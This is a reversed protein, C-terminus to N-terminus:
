KQETPGFFPRRSIYQQHLPFMISYYESWGGQRCRVLDYKQPYKEAEAFTEPNATTITLMNSGIESDAFQKMLIELDELPFDERINLDVPAANAVGFNIPDTNWDKLCKFADNIETSPPADIPSPQCSFDNAISEGALRGDASAGMGSGLGVNDEFTGVGPTISFKFPRGEINYKEKIADYGSKIKAIPKSEYSEHIIQVLKEVVSSGFMKLEESQGKGFKPLGIAVKRLNIYREAELHKRATGALNSYFPEQMNQGWNNRLANLLEPLTTLATEKDYVLKDINYLANITNSMGNMEPTMIHYTAGGNTMDRGSEMCGEVFPSFLPSPCVHWMSGYMTMLTNMFANIQWKFHTYFIEMFADFTKIAEPPPSNWSSKMGNLHIWGAGAITSGQNMAMGVVPLIPLFSFCWESKGCIIPEFCGDPAYDRSDKMSINCREMAPCMKDDNMLIPHAGGSLIAKSAETFIEDHFESKMKKHVRLTLCPANLPLRKASRLCMMTLENCGDIPEEDDTPLYGGITVQQCWQNLASGQPFNGGSFFVAGTGYTLHDEMNQRQYTVPEDMKLWFADILEQADAPTIINNKIDERYSEILLQDLRGISHNEGVLHLAVNVIFILQISDHFGKPKELALRKMREAIQAWNCKWELDTGPTEGELEMALDAYRHVYTQLGEMAFVVSQYFERSADNSASTLGERAEALMGPIGLRLLKFYDPINHGSTSFENKGGFYQEIKEIPSLYEMVRCGSGLTLPPFTGVILEYARIKFLGAPLRIKDRWLVDSLSIKTALGKRLAASNHDAIHKYSAWAEERVYDQLHGISPMNLNMRMTDNWQHFTEAIQILIRNSVADVGTFGGARMKHLFERNNYFMYGNDSRLDFYENLPCSIHGVEGHLGLLSAQPVFWFNGSVSHSNSLLRDKVYGEDPGSIDSLVEDFLHGDNAYSVFYAGEEKGNEGEVEGYPLAQRLMDQSVNERNARRVCKLHSRDCIMPLISGNMTIGIMNEKEIGSMDNIRDWNFKFKQQFVFTSGRYFPDKDGIITRHSMNVEDVPNAIGHPFCGGLIRNHHRDRCYTTTFRTTIPKLLTIIFEALDECVSKSEAKIYYWFSGGTNKFPKRELTAHTNMGRPKQMHNHECWESWLGYDVGKIAVVHDKSRSCYGEIAHGARIWRGYISLERRRDNLRFLPRGEVTRQVEDGHEKIFFTLFKAHPPFFPIGKQSDNLNLKTM